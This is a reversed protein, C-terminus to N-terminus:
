RAVRVLVAAAGEGHRYLPSDTLPCRRLSGDAEFTPRLGDPRSAAYVPLDTTADRLVFGEADFLPRLAIEAGADANTPGSSTAESGCAALVAALAVVVILLAAKMRM